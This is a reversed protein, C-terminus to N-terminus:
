FIDKFGRQLKQAWTKQGGQPALNQGTLLAYAKTYWESDPYNYGLISAARQAEDAVGLVLYSETLRYLAEPTQSTQQYNTIVERFRNVAALHQQQKQYYRGVVMERGALHDETLTLKLKADQAYKSEPFRSIVENFAERALRTQAQDRMVDTLRNYHNLGKLYYMYPLEPHGPNLKIFREITAISEDYNSAKFQTYADMVQARTAWASYPYQRELETFNHTAEIYKKEKLADMGANYLSGITGTLEGDKAASSACGTLLVVGGLICLRLFIAPNFMLHRSLKKRKEAARPGYAYANIHASRLALFVLFIAPM